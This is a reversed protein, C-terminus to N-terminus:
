SERQVSWDFSIEQILNEHLSLAVPCTRAAKELIVKHHDSLSPAFHYFRIIIKGVRRPNSEMVKTVDAKLQEIDIHHAEAAIGMLTMMCSSLAACVTDTPSFLEGKGKNDLPADTMFSSGSANHTQKTRLNGLYESSITIM